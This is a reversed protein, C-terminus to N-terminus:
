RQHERRSAALSEPPHRHNGTLSVGVIITGVASINCTLRCLLARQRITVAEVSSETAAVWDPCCYIVEPQARAARQPGQVHRAQLGTPDRQGEELLRTEDLRCLVKSEEGFDTIPAGRRPMARMTAVHVAILAVSCRTGRQPPGATGIVVHIIVAISQQPEAHANMVVIDPCCPM